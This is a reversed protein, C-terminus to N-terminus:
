SYEIFTTFGLSGSRNFFSSNSHFSSLSQTTCLWGALGKLRWHTMPSVEWGTLDVPFRPTTSSGITRMHLLPHGGCGETIRADYHTGQMVYAYM